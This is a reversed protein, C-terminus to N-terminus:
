VSLTDIDRAQVGPLPIILNMPSEVAATAGTESEILIREIAPIRLQLFKLLQKDTVVTNASQAIQHSGQKYSFSSIDDPYQSSFDQIAIPDTELQHTVM